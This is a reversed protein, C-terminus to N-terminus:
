WRSIEYATTIFPFIDQALNIKGNSSLYVLDGDSLTCSQSIDGKELINLLNVEIPKNPKDAKIIHIKKKAAEPTYGGALGIADLLNHQKEIEYLGPKAVKGLVYVRITKFKSINVITKPDKIYTSLSESLLDALEGPSRGSVKVEGVLPFSINGDPRVKLDKVQLEDHGWISISVEDGPGLVYDAAQVGQTVICFMLILFILAENM